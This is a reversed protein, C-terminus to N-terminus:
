KSPSHRGPRRKRALHYAVFRDLSTVASRIDPYVPLGNEELIGVLDAYYRGANVSIVMPQPYRRSLEVLRPALADPDHCTDPATKLTETHPVVSVFLCGVGPDQLMTEVFNAYDRDNAMPTVDLFSSRVDVLGTRDIERLRTVTAESLWAPTLHTMEDAGAASEFGANVV